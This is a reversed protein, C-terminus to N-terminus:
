VDWNLETTALSQPEISSSTTTQPYAQLLRPLIKSRMKALQDRADGTEHSLGESQVRLSQDAVHIVRCCGGIDGRGRHGRLAGVLIAHILEVVVIVVM